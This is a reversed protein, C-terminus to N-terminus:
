DKILGNKFMENLEIYDKPNNVSKWFGSHRYAIIQKQEVLRQFVERELDDGEEIYGFIKKDFVFYGGNLWDKILPKEEFGSIIYPNFEDFKIVGYPNIMRIATLTAIRGEKKHFNLLANINVDSLDDGYSVFFTEGAFEKIKLLRDSKSSNEGTDVAEIKYKKYDKFYDRIKHGLYGLCLVFEKVGYKAYHDMIREIIPKNGVMLLPKPIDETLSGMRVGRGGCFIVCKM